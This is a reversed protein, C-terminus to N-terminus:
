IYMFIQCPQPHPETTSCKGQTGDGDDGFFSRALLRQLTVKVWCHIVSTLDGSREWLFYIQTDNIQNRLYVGRSSLLHGKKYVITVHNESGCRTLSLSRSGSELPGTDRWGVVSLVFRFKSRDEAVSWGFWLVLFNWSDREGRQRRRIRDFFPM